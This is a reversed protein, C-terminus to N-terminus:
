RLCFKLYIFNLVSHSCWFSSNVCFKVLKQLLFYTQKTQLLKYLFVDLAFDHLQLFLKFFKAQNEKTKLFVRLQENLFLQSFCFCHFTLTILMTKIGGIFFHLLFYRNNGQLPKTLNRYTSFKIASPKLFNTEAGSDNYFFNKILM